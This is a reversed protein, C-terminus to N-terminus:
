IPNLSRCLLWVTVMFGYYTLYNALPLVIYLHALTLAVSGGADFTELVAGILELVVTM